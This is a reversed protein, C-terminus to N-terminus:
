SWGPHPMMPIREPIPRLSAYSFLASRYSEALEDAWGMGSEAYEKARELGMLLCRYGASFRGDAMWHTAEDVAQCLLREEVQQLASSQIKEGSM